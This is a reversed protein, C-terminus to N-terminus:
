HPLYRELWTNQKSIRSDKKTLRSHIMSSVSITRQIWQDSLAASCTKISTYAFNIFDAKWYENSPDHDILKEIEIALDYIQDAKCINLNSIQINQIWLKTLYHSDRYQFNDPNKILLTKLKGVQASLGEVALAHNGQEHAILALNRHFTVLGFKVDENNPFDIAAKEYLNAAESFEAKAKQLTKQTQFIQGLKNFAWGYEALYELNSRDTEYLRRSLAKYATGHQVALETDQTEYARLLSYESQAHTFLATIDKPDRNLLEETVLRAQLLGELADANKGQAIAVQGLLHMSRARRILHEDNMDGVPIADYYASVQDGVNDIISLKGIPELDNTLDNLMFEILKEAENRSNDAAARFTQAQNRASVANLTSIAMIGSFILSASTIAYMRLRRLRTQRQILEDLGVNLISAALQLLGLRFNKPSLNAALPESGQTKLAPPLSTDPNGEILACLISKEGHLKQFLRIEENVWKSKKASPSCLVILFRSHKIADEIKASLSHHATLETVDRFIPSIRSAQHSRLRKPVRFRELTRQLRAAQAADNHAYSIFAQYKYPLLIMGGM